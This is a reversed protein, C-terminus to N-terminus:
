FTATVLPHLLQGWEGCNVLVRCCQGKRVERGGGGRVEESFLGVKRGGEGLMKASLPWCLGEYSKASLIGLPHRVLCPRIRRRPVSSWPFRHPGWSTLGFGSGKEGEWTLCEGGCHNMIHNCIRNLSHPALTDGIRMRFTEDVRRMEGERSVCAGTEQRGGPGM